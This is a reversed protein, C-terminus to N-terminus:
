NRTLGVFTVTYPCTAPPTTFLFERHGQTLSVKGTGKDTNVPINNWLHGLQQQAGATVMRSRQAAYQATLILFLEAEQTSANLKTSVKIACYASEGEQWLFTYFFFIEKEIVLCTQSMELHFTFNKKPCRDKKERLFLCVSKQSTLSEMKKSIESLAAAALTAIKFLLQM